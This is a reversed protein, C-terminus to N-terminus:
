EMKKGGGGGVFHGPVAGGGGGGIGGEGGRARISGGDNLDEEMLSGEEVATAVKTAKVEAAEEQRKASLAPPKSRLM